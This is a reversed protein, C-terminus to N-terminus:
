DLSKAAEAISPYLSFLRDFHVIRLVDAVSGQVGALSMSGSVRKLRTKAQVFAALGESSIAKLQSCDLVITRDGRDICHQICDVLSNATFSDLRGKVELVIADQVGELKYSSYDSM